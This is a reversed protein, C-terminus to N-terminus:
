FCYMVLNATTEFLRGRGSCLVRESLTASMTLSLSLFFFTKKKKRKKIKLLPSSIFFFESERAREEKGIRAELFFSLHGVHHEERRGRGREALRQERAREEQLACLAVEVRQEGTRTQFERAGCFNERRRRERREKERGIKRM